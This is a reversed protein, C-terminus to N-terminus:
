RRCGRCRLLLRRRPGRPEGVKALTSEILKTGAAFRPKGREGVNEYYWIAAGKADGYTSGMTSLLLDELGDGNWDIMRPTGLKEKHRIAGAM